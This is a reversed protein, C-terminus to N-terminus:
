ERAFTSLTMQGFSVIDFRQNAYETNMQTQGKRLFSASDIDNLSSNIKPEESM